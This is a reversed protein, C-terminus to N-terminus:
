RLAEYVSDLFLNYSLTLLPGLGCGSNSIVEVDLGNARMTCGRVSMHGFPSFTAVLAIASGTFDEFISHEIRSNAGFYFEWLM